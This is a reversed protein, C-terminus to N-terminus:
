GGYEGQVSPSPLRTSLEHGSEDRAVASSSPLYAGRTANSHLPRSGMSQRGSTRTMRKRHSAIVNHM